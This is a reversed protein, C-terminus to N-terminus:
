KRNLKMSVPSCNTMNVAMVPVSTFLFHHEFLQVNLSREQRYGEDNLIKDAPFGKARLLFGSHFRGRIIKMLSSGEEQFAKLNDKWDDTSATGRFAVYIRHFTITNFFESM